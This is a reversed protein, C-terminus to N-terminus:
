RCSLAKGTGRKDALPRLSDAIGQLKMRQFEFRAPTSTLSAVVMEHETAMIAVFARLQRPGEQYALELRIGVASGLTLPTEEVVRFESSLHAMDRLKRMTFGDLCSRRPDYSERTLVLQDGAWGAADQRPPRAILDAGMIDRRTEWGAPLTIQWGPGTVKKGTQAALATTGALCALLLTLIRLMM